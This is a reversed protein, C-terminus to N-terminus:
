SFSLTSCDINSDILLRFDFIKLQTVIIESTHCIIQLLLILLLKLIKIDGKQKHTKTKLLLYFNVIITIILNYLVRHFFYM